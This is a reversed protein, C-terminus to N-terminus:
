YEIIETMEKEKGRKSSPNQRKLNGEVKTKTRLVLYTV